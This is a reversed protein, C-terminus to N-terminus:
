EEAGEEDAGEDPEAPAIKGLLVSVDVSVLGALSKVGTTKNEEVKAFNSVIVNASNAEFRRTKNTISMSGKTAPFFKAELKAMDQTNKVTQLAGCAVAWTGKNTEIATNVLDFVMSNGKYSANTNKEYNAKAQDAYGSKQMFFLAIVGFVLVTLAIFINKLNM